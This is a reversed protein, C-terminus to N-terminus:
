QTIKWWSCSTLAFQVSDVVIAFNMPSISLISCHILTKILVLFRQYFCNSTIFFISQSRPELYRDTWLCDWNRNELISQADSPKECRMDLYMDELGSHTDEYDLEQNRNVLRRFTLWNPLNTVLVRLFVTCYEVTQFVTNVLSLNSYKKGTALRFKFGKTSGASFVFITAPHM